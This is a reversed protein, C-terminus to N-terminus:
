RRSAAVLIALPDIPKGRSWHTVDASRAITFHLHPM